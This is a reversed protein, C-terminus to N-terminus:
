RRKPTLQQIQELLESPNTNPPMTLHQRQQGNQIGRQYETDMATRILAWGDQWAQRAAHDKSFVYPSHTAMCGRAAATMGETYAPHQTLEPM